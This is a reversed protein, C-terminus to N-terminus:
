TSRDQKVQQKNAGEIEEVAAGKRGGVRHRGGAIRGFFGGARLSM